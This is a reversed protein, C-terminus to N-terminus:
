DDSTVEVTGTATLGAATSRLRTPTVRVRLRQAGITISAAPVSGLTRVTQGRTRASLEGALTAAATSRAANRARCGLASMMSLGACDELEPQARVEVLKLDAGAADVALGVSEPFGRPTARARMTARDDGSTVRLSRLEIAQRDIPVVLPGSQTAQSLLRNALADSIRLTADAGEPLTLPEGPATPAGAVAGAATVPPTLALTVGDAKGFRVAVDFTQAPFDPLSLSQAGTRITRVTPAAQARTLAAALGASGMPSTVFSAISVRVEWPAFTAGFEVLAADPLSAFAARRAMKELSARCDGAADLLPPAAPLTDRRSRVVGLVRGRGGDGASCYRAEMLWATLPPPPPGADAARDGAIELPQPLLRALMMNTTAASILVDAREAGDNAQVLAPALFVLGALLCARHRHPPASSASAKM